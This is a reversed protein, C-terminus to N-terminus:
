PISAAEVGPAAFRMDDARISRVLPIRKRLTVCARARPPAENLWSRFRTSLYLGPCSVRSDVSWPRFLRDETRANDTELM